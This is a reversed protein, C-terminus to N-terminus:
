FLYSALMYLIDISSFVAWAPRQFPL